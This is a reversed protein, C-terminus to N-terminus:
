QQLKAYEAKAQKLIPIDSDANKWLAFFEEYSTRAREYNGQLAYARALGLQALAGLHFNVVLGRHDVFKQFEAAAARGNGMALYGEGRLYIPYLFGEWLTPESLEWPATTQLLAIAKDPHKHHLEITARVSPLWYSQVLTDLPFDQDLRTALKEAETVDGSRALALAAMAELDRNRALKLAANAHGRARQHTGFEAERMAAEAGYYAATEKSENLQAARIAQRTLERAKEVRGYWAETKAQFALLVDEAGPKGSAAAALRAMQEPDTKVFALQYRTALLLEGGLHREEAQKYVAEAEDFRNLNVYTSAVNIAASQSNPNERLVDRMEDLAKEFNGMQTYVIGLTNHPAYDNPYAQLWLEANQEVKELQGTVKSYYGSEIVFQERESVNKRLEHARRHCENSLGVESLNDYATGMRAYAMAFNPDLEIARKFWPLAATEGKTHLTKVGLSYAKLADLSSTSAQEIPTDFQRVKALSEGLEGRITAAENGLIRLVEEKRAAQAQQKILAEGTACNIVNLTIVYQNGFSSISGALLVKSNVRQCLERALTGAVGETPSHGMMKMTQAVTQEPVINLFPSQQVAIALGEKLTDDFAVDETKNEFDALMVTDKKSLASIRHPRSSIVAVITIASAGVAILAKWTKANRSESKAPAPTEVGASATGNSVPAIFRYGRRPLTEIFRPSEASDGLADRLKNVAINVGHDFDVFTDNPWLKKKLEERTVLEGPHEVLVALVQCPQEQLKIRRGQKYIEATRLDLEFQDFRRLHPSDAPSAM